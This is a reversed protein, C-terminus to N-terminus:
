QSPASMVEIGNGPSRSGQNQKEDNVYAFDADVPAGDVADNGAENPGNKGHSGVQEPSAGGSGSWHHV